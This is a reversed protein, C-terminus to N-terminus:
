KGTLYDKYKIHCDAKSLADEFNKYKFHYTTSVGNKNIFCHKLLARSVAKWHIKGDIFELLSNRTMAKGYYLIKYDSMARLLHTENSEKSGCHKCILHYRSKELNFSRCNGCYVGKRLRTEDVDSKFYPNEAIHESLLRVIFQSKNGIKGGRFQRFYRRLDSRVVIKSWLSNDDTHLYFDDSPFILKGSVRFSSNAANRLGILKGVARNLQAVPDESIRRGARYWDGGEVKYDGTYNKIENVAIGEDDIVLADYQTVSEGIKLYLDRYVLVDGHGVDNFIEDYLCEGEFGKLTAAHRRNEHKTLETRKELADYFLLDHSKLRPNLFM